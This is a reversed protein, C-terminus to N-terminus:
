FVRIMEAEIRAQITSRLTERPVLDVKTQLLDSLSVELQAHKLLSFKKDDSEFLLDIDSDPRSDARAVSGFVYLASLGQGRLKPELTKLSSILETRDM